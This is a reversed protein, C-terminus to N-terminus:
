HRTVNGTEPTRRRNEDRPILPGAQHLIMRWAGEEEAFLNTCATQGGPLLELGCVIGVGGVLQVQQPLFQIEGPHGHQFIQRWSNLVSSRDILPPAGPHLCAVPLRAAWLGEMAVLDAHAFAQYFRINAEEFPLRAPM